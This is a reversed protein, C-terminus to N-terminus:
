REVPRCILALGPGLQRRTLWGALPALRYYLWKRFPQGRRGREHQRVCIVEYGTDRLLCLIGRYSFNYKADGVLADTISLRLWQRLRLLPTRNVIRMVLVGHAALRAHFARLTAAPDNLYYFNDITSIIDFPPTLPVDDISRHVTYNLARVHSRLSDVIEVGTVIDGRAAALELLSGFACGVDCLRAGTSPVTPQAHALQLIWALFGLRQHRWQAERSPDTYSAVDFHGQRIVENFDTDRWITACDDCRRLDTRIEGDRIYLPLTTLLSTRTSGCAACHPRKADATSM